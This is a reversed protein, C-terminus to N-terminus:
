GTSFRTGRSQSGHAGGAVDVWLVNWGIQRAGSDGCHGAGDPTADTVPPPIPHMTHVARLERDKISWIFKLALISVLLVVGMASLVVAFRRVNALMLELAPNARNRRPSPPAGPLEAVPRSRSIPSPKVKHYLSREPTRGDGREPEPEPSVGDMARLM